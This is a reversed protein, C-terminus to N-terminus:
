TEHTAHIGDGMGYRWGYGHHTHRKGRCVRWVCSADFGDEAVRNLQEYLKGDSREVPRVYRRKQRFSHMINGRQTTWELNTALNHSIDNDLHNVVDCGEPKECFAEAVLRSVLWEKRTGNKFLAVQLYGTTNQKPSLLRGQIRRTGRTTSVTRDLSRVNGCDSVEYLGEYGKVPKWVEAAM